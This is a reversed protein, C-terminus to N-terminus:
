HGEHLIRVMAATADGALVDIPTQALVCVHHCSRRLSHRHRWRRRHRSRLASRQCVSESAVTPSMKWPSIALVLCAFAWPMWTAQM